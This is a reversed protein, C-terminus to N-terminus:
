ITERKLSIDYSALSEASVLVYDGKGWGECTLPATLCSPVVASIIKLIGRRISCTEDMM